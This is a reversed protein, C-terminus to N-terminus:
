NEFDPMHQSLLLVQQPHNSFRVAAAPFVLCATTFNLLNPSTSIQFDLLEEKAPM